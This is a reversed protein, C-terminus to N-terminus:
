SHFLHEGEEPDTPGEPQIKTTVITITPEVDIIKSRGNNEAKSKSDLNTEKYKIDFV